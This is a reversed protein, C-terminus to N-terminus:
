STISLMQFVNLLAQLLFFSSSSSSSDPSDSPFEGLELEIVDDLDDDHSWTAMSISGSGAISTVVVSAVGGSISGSSLGIVGSLSFGVLGVAAAAVGLVGTDAPLRTCVGTLGM